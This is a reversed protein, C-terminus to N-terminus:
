VKREEKRGRKEEMSGQELALRLNPQRYFKLGLPGKASFKANSAIYHDPGKGPWRIGDEAAQSNWGVHRLNPEVDPIGLLARPGPM